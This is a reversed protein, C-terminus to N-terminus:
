PETYRECLRGCPEHHPRVKLTTIHNHQADEISVYIWAKAQADDFKWASNGVPRIEPDPTPATGNVLRWCTKADLLLEMGDAWSQYNDSNLKTVKIEGKLIVKAYVGNIKPAGSTQGNAPQNVVSEPSAPGGASDNSPNGSM